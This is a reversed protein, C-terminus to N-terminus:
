RCAVWCVWVDVLLFVGFGFGLGGYDWGDLGFGRVTLCMWGLWFWLFLLVLINQWGM